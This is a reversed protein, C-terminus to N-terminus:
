RECIYPFMWVLLRKLYITSIFDRPALPPIHLTLTPTLTPTLTIALTLIKLSFLTTYVFISEMRWFWNIDDRYSYVLILQEYFVFLWNHFCIRNTSFLNSKDFFFNLIELVLEIERFGFRNREIERCIEFSCYIEFGLWKRQRWLAKNFDQFFCFCIWLSSSLTSQYM